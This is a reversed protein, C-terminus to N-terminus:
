KDDSDDIIFEKKDKVIKGKPVDRSRKERFTQLVKQREEDSLDKLEDLLKQREKETLSPFEAPGLVEEVTEAQPKDAIALTQFVEEWDEKPIKRLQAAIREKELRSLTPYTALRAQLETEVDKSIEPEKVKRGFRTGDGMQKRLDEIFWVREAPAIQKMQQFLELKQEYEIFPLSKLESWIADDEAEKERLDVETPLMVTGIALGLSQYAPSALDQMLSPRSSIHALDGKSITPTQGKSITHSMKRMKRVMWPVSFVRAYAFWIALLIIGIVAVLAGIQIYQRIIPSLQAVIQTQGSIFDYRIHGTAEFTILYLQEAPLSIGALTFTGDQNNILEFSGLGPIQATVQADSVPLGHYSDFLQITIDFPAGTSVVPPSELIVVSVTIRTVDLVYSSSYQPEYNQRSLSISLSYQDQSVGTLDIYAIYLGAHFELNGTGYGWNYVGTANLIPAGASDTYNFYLILLDGWPIRWNTGNLQTTIGDPPYYSETRILILDTSQPRININISTFAYEYGSYDATLLLYYYSDALYVTSSLSITYWGLTGNPELSGALTSWNYTINAGTIPSNNFTDNFYVYVTFNDGWDVNQVPADVQLRCPIRTLSVPIERWQTQMNAKSASIYLTYQGASMSGTNISVEYIGPSIASFLGNYPGFLFTVNAGTIPQDNLTTFNVTFIFSTNAVAIVPYPTITELKTETPTIVLVIFSSGERYNPPNSAIITVIWSGPDANALFTYTYIGNGLFAMTVNNRGAWEYVVTADNVPRGLHDTVNVTLIQADNYKTSNQGGPPSIVSVLIPIPDLKVLVNLSRTAFHPSIPSDSFTILISYQGITRCTTNLALLYSGNGLDYFTFFGANWDTTTTAYPILAGGHDLDQYTLEITLNDGWALSPVYLRDATLATQIERIVFSQINYGNSYHSKSSFIQITYGGEIENDTYITLYYAHDTVNYIVSWDLPAWNCSISAAPIQVGNETDNYHLILTLTEGWPVSTTTQGMVKTDIIFLTTQIDRVQFSVDIQGLDYHTKSLTFSVTYGQTGAPVKSTYLIITYTGDGNDDFWYDIGTENDMWSFAVFAGAVGEYGNDTDNYKLTIVIATG